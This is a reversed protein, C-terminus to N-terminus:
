AERELVFEGLFHDTDAKRATRVTKFGPMFIEIEYHADTDLNEFEWDGFYNTRVSRTEGDSIRTLVVSAGEAAKDEPLCVSGAFFVTPINLHVVHTEIGRLAEPQTINGSTIKKNIESEPDDLDGFYLAGNPCAEVCRPESYGQDLLHACMTCKQAVRLEENWYAAGIPCADVVSKQGKAKVPDIIVIGDPRVYVAGDKAAKLCPADECHSCPMPVTATKIKRNDDGREWETIKMWFQGTHPQASSVTTDFGCHEDKCAAFCNYCAMCNATDIVMGYKAM